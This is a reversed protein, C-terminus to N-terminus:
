VRFIVSDLQRNLATVDRKVESYTPTNRYGRVVLDSYIRQIANNSNM